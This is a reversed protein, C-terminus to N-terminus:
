VNDIINNNNNSAPVHFSIFISNYLFRTLLNQLVSRSKHLHSYPPFLWIVFFLSVSVCVRVYATPLSGFRFLCLYNHFACTPLLLLRGTCVCVFVCSPCQVGTDTHNKGDLQKKYVNVLKNAQKCCEAREEPPEEESCRTKKM